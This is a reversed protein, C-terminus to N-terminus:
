YSRKYTINDLIKNSQLPRKFVTDLRPGGRKVGCSGARRPRPRTRCFHGFPLIACRRRRRRLPTSLLAPAASGNEWKIERHVITCFGNYNSQQCEPPLGPYQDSRLLGGRRGRRGDGAGRRTGRSSRQGTGARVYTYIYIVFAWSWDIVAMSPASKRRGWVSDLAIITIVM